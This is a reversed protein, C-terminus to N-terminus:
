TILHCDDFCNPRQFDSVGLVTLGSITREEAQIKGEQSGMQPKPKSLWTTAFIRVHSLWQSSSFQVLALEKSGSYIQEATSLHETTDLIHTCTYIGRHTHTHLSLIYGVSRSSQHFCSQYLNFSIQSGHVM